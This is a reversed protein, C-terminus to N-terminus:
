GAPQTQTPAHITLTAPETDNGAKVTIHAQEDGSFSGTAKMKIQNTYQKGGAPITVNGFSCTSSCTVKPNDSTVSVVSATGAMGDSMKVTFNIATEQGANITEPSLAVDFLQPEAAALAPAAVGFLGAAAMVVVIGARIFWARRHTSVGWAGEPVPLM